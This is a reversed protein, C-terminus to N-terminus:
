VQLYIRRINKQVLAKWLITRNWFKRDSDRRLLTSRWKMMTRRVQAKEKIEYFDDIKIKGQYKKGTATSADMGIRKFFSKTKELTIADNALRAQRKELYQSYNGGICTPKDTELEVIENCIRELFYRDHTVMFITLNPQQLFNELWEIMEMDLHNTPEYLILFRARRDIDSSFCTTEESRRVDWRNKISIPSCYNISFKMYKQKLTGLKWTM